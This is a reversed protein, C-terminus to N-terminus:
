ELLENTEDESNETKSRSTKKIRMNDFFLDSEECLYNSCMKCLKAGMENEYGCLDCIVSEKKQEFSLKGDFEAPMKVLIYGNELEM